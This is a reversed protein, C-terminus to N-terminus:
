LYSIHQYRVMFHAYVAKDAAAALQALVATAGALLAKINVM